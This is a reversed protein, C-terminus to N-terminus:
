DRICRVSLAFGGPSSLLVSRYTDPSNRSVGMFYAGTGNSWLRASEGREYFYAGGAFRYGALPVQLAEV